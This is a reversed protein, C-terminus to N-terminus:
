GVVIESIDAVALFIQLLSGIIGLRNKQLTGDDAMVLVKDFFDDVQPRLKAMLNFVKSYERSRALRILKPRLKEVASYLADEEGQQFLSPNVSPPENM